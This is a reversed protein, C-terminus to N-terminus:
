VIEYGKNEAYAKMQEANHSCRMALFSGKANRLSLMGSRNCLACGDVATQAQRNRHRTEFDAVARAQYQLIGGFTEPRYKTAQAAEHSFRVFHRAKEMGHESIFETAQKLEKAQPMSNKVNHFRQYFDSIIEHAGADHGNNPASSAAHTEAESIMERATESV